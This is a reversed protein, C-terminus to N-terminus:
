VSTGRGAAVAKAYIAAACAVDQLATGTADYVVLEDTTRPGPKRGAIVEGLEAHVDSVDLLGAAIAHHLEGVAACQSTVDTVVVAHALIRPDLEQKEPSDAGVAAVFTGPALDELHLLPARAATCTVVLDSRRTGDAPREVPVVPCGVAPEMERALMEAAAPRRDWVYALRLRRVAALGALQIRAQRGAGCITAVSADPRALYKAAVATAAGTRQVTIHVSDLVALPTGDGADALYIIGQIAPLGRAPNGFFGGNAKLAFWRRGALDIGGAKVHFEGDLADVHLLAPTLARGEVYARFASEVAEVYEDFTFLAAVDARDLFLLSLHRARRQPHARLARSGRQRGDGRLV